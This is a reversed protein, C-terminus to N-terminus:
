NWDNRMNYQQPFAAYLPKSLKENEDNYEHLHMYMCHWLDWSYSLTKISKVTRINWACVGLTWYEHSRSEVM